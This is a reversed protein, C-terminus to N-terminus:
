DSFIRTLNKCKFFFAVYWSDFIDRVKRISFIRKIKPLRRIVKLFIQFGGPLTRFDSYHGTSLRFEESRLTRFGEFKRDEAITM